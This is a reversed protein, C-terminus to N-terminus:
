DKKQELKKLARKRLSLHTMTAVKSMIFNPVSEYMWVQVAHPWYPSVLTEYGLNAVSARAYTTPSPVFFSSHRIKALKTSVFMATHCQVHVNKSKYEDALCLSFQELYRKTASYESLLPVCFRASGSSVNVIAGRRREAMGPLVLKTMLTATTVNLTILSKVRDDPLETFYQPFDYSVGVNNFLVGVDEIQALTKKIAKQVNEDEIQTFDVSLVEVQVKPYKALIEDRVQELRSQTRSLLLVNMGKRALEMALAKGIGDTAGTVVGWKGFSSLRKAPRLFFAYVGSLLALAVRGVVLAGLLSLALTPTSLHQMSPSLPGLRLAQPLMSRHRAAPPTVSWRPIGGMLRQQRRDKDKSYKAQFKSSTVIETDMHRVHAALLTVKELELQLREMAEAHRANQDGNDTDETELLFKVMGKHKDMIANVHGRRILDLLLKEATIVDMDDLGAASAMESLAITVYTCPLELLQKEKLSERCQKALGMNGDKILADKHQEILEAVRAADQSTLPQGVDKKGENATFLKSLEMYPVCHADLHRTVVFPTYKPLTPPKGTVILSTLVLKKYAEIVFASLSVAPTTVAMLFFDMAEEYRKQGLYLVGGYYAYSLYDVVTMGSSPSHIEYIPQDLLEMAAFYCKSRLCLYLFHGHLPTLLTHGHQYLRRLFSKLPYITKISQNLSIAISAFQACLLSVRKMEKSAVSVPAQYFFESLQQLFKTTMLLSQPSATAKAGLKSLQDVKTAKASLLLLHALPNREVALVDHALALELQDITAQQLAATMDESNLARSLSLDNQKRDTEGDVSAEQTRLLERLTQLPGWESSGEMIIVITKVIM